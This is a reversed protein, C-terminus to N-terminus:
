RGSGDDRKRRLNFVLLSPALGCILIVLGIIIGDKATSGQSLTTLIGIAISIVAVVILSIILGKKAPKKDNEHDVSVNMSLYALITVAVIFVIWLPNERMGDMGSTVLDYGLIGIIGLTQVVFAIRITQLNKLILREDTGKSLFALVITSAIFVIWLPNEKIGEVGSTIFNYGLIAIIGLAQLAYIMRINKLNKIILREDHIKMM